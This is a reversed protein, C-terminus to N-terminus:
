DNVAVIPSVAEEANFLNQDCMDLDGELRRKVKQHGTSRDDRAKRNIGPSAIM